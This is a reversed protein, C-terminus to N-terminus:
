EAHNGPPRRTTYTRRRQGPTGARRSTLSKVDSEDIDCWLCTLLSVYMQYNYVYLPPSCNVEREKFCWWGVRM